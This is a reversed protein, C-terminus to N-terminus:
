MLLILMGGTKTATALDVHAQQCLYLAGYCSGEPKFVRMREDKALMGEAHRVAKEPTLANRLERPVQGWGEMERHLQRFEEVAAFHVLWNEAIRYYLIVARCSLCVPLQELLRLANTNLSLSNGPSPRPTAPLPPPDFWHTGTKVKNIGEPPVFGHGKERACGRVDLLNKSIERGCGELKDVESDYCPTDANWNVEARKTTVQM